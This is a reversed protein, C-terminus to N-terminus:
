HHAKPKTALPHAPPVLLEFKRLGIGGESDKKAVLQWCAAKVPTWRLDVAQDGCSKQPKTVERYTGTKDRLDAKTDACEIHWTYNAKPDALTVVTGSVDVPSPFRLLYELPQKAYHKVRNSGDLDDPRLGDIQEGNAYYSVQGFHNLEKLPMRVLDCRSTVKCYIFVVDANQFWILDAVDSRPKDFQGDLPFEKATILPPTSRAPGAPMYWKKAGRQPIFPHWNTTETQWVLRNQADLAALRFGIGGKGKSAGVTIVDGVKLDAKASYECLEDQRVTFDASVDRLLRGNVYVDSSGGCCWVLTVEHSNARPKSRDAATAATVGLTILVAVFRTSPASM